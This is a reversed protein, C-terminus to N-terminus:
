CGVWSPSWGPQCSSATISKWSTIQWCGGSCRARNWCNKPATREALLIQPAGVSWYLGPMGLRGDVYADLQDSSAFVLISLPRRFELPEGVLECFRQRAALFDDRITASLPSDTFFHATVGDQIRRQCLSQGAIKRAKALDAGGRRRLWHRFVAVLVPIAFVVGAVFGVGILGAWVSQGTWLSPVIVLALLVLLWGLCGTLPRLPHLADEYPKPLRYAPPRSQGHLEERRRRRRALVGWLASWAIFGLSFLIGAAVRHSGGLIRIPELTKADYLWVQSGRAAAVTQGDPSLVAQGTDGLLYAAPPTAEGRRRKSSIDWIEFSGDPRGVLLSRADPAFQLNRGMSECPIRQPTQSAAFLDWILIGHHTHAALWRGDRSMALNYCYDNLPWSKVRQLTQLDCLEM